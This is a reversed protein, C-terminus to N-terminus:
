RIRFVTASGTAPQSLLVTLTGGSTIYNPLEVSTYDDAALYTANTTALNVTVSADLNIVGYKEGDYLLNLQVTEPLAETIGISLTASPAVTAESMNSNSGNLTLTSSNM